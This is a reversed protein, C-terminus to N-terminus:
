VNEDDEMMEKILTLEEIAAIAESIYEKKDVRYATHLVFRWDELRKNIYAILKNKNM